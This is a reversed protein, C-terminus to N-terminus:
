YDKKKGCKTCTKTFFGKFSGGCYQCVGANRYQEMHKELRKREEHKEMRKKQLEEISEAEIEVM